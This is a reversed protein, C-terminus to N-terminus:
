RAKASVTTGYMPARPDKRMIVVTRRDRTLFRRTAGLLAEAGVGAYQEFPWPQGGDVASALRQARGSSTQLRLLTAILWEDRVRACEEPTIGNALDGLVSDIVKVVDNAQALDGVTATIGFTSGRLFSHQGSRVDVAYGKSVLAHQLRGQPDTLIAAVMDLEADGPANLPPTPWVYTVSDRTADARVEVWEDPVDWTSPLAPRTPPAPGPLDGFYRDVMALTAAADLKGAIVVKANRPTYWTRWFARVDDLTISKLTAVDDANRRYPHWAPYVEHNVVRTIRGLFADDIRGHMEETVTTKEHAFAAPDFTPFGMRDSELWLVVPVQEPPVTVFYRTDDLHTTGNQGSGGIRDIWRQYDGAPVHRSGAYMMHEVLHALGEKGPPDDASGVDYRVVVTAEDLSPDPALVVRLGNRLVHEEVPLSLTPLAQVPAAVAIVTLVVALCAPRLM